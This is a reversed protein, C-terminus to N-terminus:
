ETSKGEGVMNIHQRYFLHINEWSRSILLTIGDNDNMKNYSSLWHTDTCLDWLAIIVKLM